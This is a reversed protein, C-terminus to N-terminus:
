TLAQCPDDGRVTNGGLVGRWQFVRAVRADSSALDISVTKMSNGTSFNTALRAWHSRTKPAYGSGIRNGCDPGTSSL